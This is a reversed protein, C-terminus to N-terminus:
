CFHVKGVRSNDLKFFGDAEGATKLGFVVFTYSAVIEPIEESLDGEPTEEVANAL